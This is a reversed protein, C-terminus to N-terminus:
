ILKMFDSALTKLEIADGSADRTHWVARRLYMVRNVYITNFRGFLLTPSLYHNKNCIPIPYTGIFIGHSFETSIEKHYGYSKERDIAVLM